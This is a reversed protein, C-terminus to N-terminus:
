EVVITDGPMLKFQAAKGTSSVLAEYTFRIRTPTPGPRVVFIRDPRAYEGLGGAGALAGLVGGRADLPFTGPRVVEGMVAITSPRPEELSITVVPNAIFDKLRTQLQASLVNPTYGAAAVDNLFPLSIKGDERVRVRASMGEQNWVRVTLVDGPNVVYGAAPAEAPTFQDVWVFPGTQACSCLGCVALAFALSRFRTWFMPPDAEPM